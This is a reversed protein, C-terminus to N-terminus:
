KINMAAAMARLEKSIESFPPRSEPDSSWCREMLSRWTPDCWSPIEPRLNGKIIGGIIEVSRLNAYPEEGTLLEWMVIGFSYVDVKETVLNNKSNSNLLEPAMWPVTGRVGGSVLTRQKIKSLGLDGIKCVPRQPDRMNVLFNHSKLDFHVISKEHLYEMGFAADMALIMRKRRDITRDKRRLVQRLSGNVMYETVTALDTVPGDTVVGYFAVINPHHLQGLIHAEKWFDALLRDELVGDTFCCPKIRKIAVNSGKWKGHYVTGYTGSGLEKIFELDSNRISQLERTALHTYFAALDNSTGGIVKSCSLSNGHNAEETSSLSSPSEQRDEEVHESGKEIKALNQFSPNSKVENSEKVQPSTIFQGVDMIDMPKSQPKLLADSTVVCSAHSSLQPGEVEKSLSLDRLSRNVSCTVGNWLDQINNSGNQSNGLSSNVTEEGPLKNDITGSTNPANVMVKLCTENDVDRHIPECKSTVGHVNEYSTQYQGECKGFGSVTILNEQTDMNRVSPYLNETSDCNVVSQGGVRTFEGYYGLCNEELNMKLHQLLGPGNQKSGKQASHQVGSLSRDKISSAKRMRVRDAYHPLSYPHYLRVAKGEKSISMHPRIVLCCKRTSVRGDLRVIRHNGKEAINSRRHNRVCFPICQQHRAEERSFRHNRISSSLGDCVRDGAYLPIMTEGCCHCSLGNKVLSGNGIGAVGNQGMDKKVHFGNSGPKTVSSCNVPKLGQMALVSQDAVGVGNCLVKGLAQDGRLNGDRPNLPSSRGVSFQAVNDCHSELDRLLPEYAECQKTEGLEVESESARGLGSDPGPGPGSQKAVQKLVIRRLSDQKKVAAAKVDVSRTRTESGVRYCSGAGNASCVFLKLRVSMGCSELKDFSDVMRRVDDDSDLRVLPAAAAAAPGSVSYPLQYRIVFSAIGPSLGSIKSLLKSFSVPRDVTVIKADGGSYHLLGSPPRLHFAGNFRCVLKLHTRHHHNAPRTPQAAHHHNTTPNKRRSLPPEKMSIM